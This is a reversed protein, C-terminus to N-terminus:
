EAAKFTTKGKLHYSTYYQGPGINVPPTRLKTFQIDAFLVAASAKNSLVNGSFDQISFIPTNAIGSALTKTSAPSSSYRKLTSDAPDYYYRIYNTNTASPYLLVAGGTLATNMAVEQFAGSQWSGIRWKQSKKADDVLRSLITRAETNAGLKMETIQCIRMGFVHVSIVGSLVLATLASAVLLSTLTFAEARRRLSANQCSIQHGLAIIM